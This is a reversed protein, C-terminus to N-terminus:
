KNKIASVATVSGIGLTAIADGILFNKIKNWASM